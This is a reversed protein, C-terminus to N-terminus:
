ALAGGCSSGAGATCGLCHDDTAIPTDQLTGFDEIHWIDPASGPVCVDLMQNFDCDYLKGQYDISVLGTCMLARVAHPNFSGKLLQMYQHHQGQRVLDRKFRAIPMNTITYLCNFEIGFDARLKQRYATELESQDPPLFPGSPNYVLNLIRGTGVVGYGSENLTRLAAISQQFVGSGRQQDVNEPGYCPLSAVIEVKQESLFAITDEQGPELLVTLNCRDMVHRNSQRVHRVLRRFEPHLEPAGGTIDVTQITPSRLILEIVRDVTSSSM